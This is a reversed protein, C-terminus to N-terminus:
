SVPQEPTAPKPRAFAGVLLGITSTILTVFFSIVGFLAGGIGGVVSAATDATHTATQALGNGSLNAASNALHTAHTAAKMTMFFVVLACLVSGLFWIGFAATKSVKTLFTSLFAGVVFVLANVIWSGGFTIAATGAVVILAAVMITWAHKEPVTGPKM